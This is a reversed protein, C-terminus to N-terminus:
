VARNLVKCSIWVGNTWKLDGRGAFADHRKKLVHDPLFTNDFQANGGASVAVSAHQGVPRSDLPALPVKRPRSKVGPHGDVVLPRIAILARQIKLQLRIARRPY